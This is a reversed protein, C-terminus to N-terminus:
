QPVLASGPAGRLIASFRQGGATTTVRIEHLGPYALTTSLTCADQTSIMSATTARDAWAVPIIEVTCAPDTIAQSAQDTFQITLTAKGDSETTLVGSAQWGLRANTERQALTSDWSVARAYYDPELGLTQDTAARLLWINGIVTLALAGVLAAPWLKAPTIM